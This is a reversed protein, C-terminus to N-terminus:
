IYIINFTPKDTFFPQLERRVPVWSFAGTEGTLVFEYRSRSAVPLFAPGLGLRVERALM